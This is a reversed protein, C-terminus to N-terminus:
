KPSIMEQKFNKLEDWKGAAALKAQRSWTTHHKVKNLLGANEINLLIRKITCSGLDKFTIIGDNNLASVVEETIGSIKTLNDAKAKVTANKKSMEVKTTKSSKKTLPVEIICNEITQGFAEVVKKGNNDNVWIKDNLLYRYEYTKGESLLLEATM